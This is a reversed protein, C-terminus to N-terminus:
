YLNCDPIGDYHLQLTVPVGAIEGKFMQSSDTVTKLEVKQCHAFTFSLFFFVAFFIKM